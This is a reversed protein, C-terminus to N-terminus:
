QLYLFLGYNRKWYDAIFGWKYEKYRKLTRIPLEKIPSKKEGSIKAIYIGDKIESNECEYGNISGIKICHYNEIYFLDSTWNM